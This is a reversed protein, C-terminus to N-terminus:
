EADGIADLILQAAIASWLLAFRSWKIRAHWQEVWGNAPEGYVTRAHEITVHFHQPIHYGRACGHPYSREFIERDIHRALNM